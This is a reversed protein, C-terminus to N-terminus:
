PYQRLHYQPHSVAMLRQAQDPDVWAATAWADAWVLDPGIVTVSGGGDVAKGNRPDIVHGGRAAGGSTAVAGGSVEVVDVTAMPDRPDQIGIRWPRALGELRRGAGVMLDGGANICFSIRDVVELYAAARKVAWGKALGTPDFGTTGDPGTLHTTFLGAMEVEAEACLVSVETLWPHAAAVELEARRVRLLDSDARWPSLVADVQRLHAYANAVAAQIDARGPETARVHISVPLGMVHEVFARTGWQAPALLQTPRM